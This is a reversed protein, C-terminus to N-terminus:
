LNFETLAYCAMSTAVAADIKKDDSRKVLRRKDGAEIKGDANKIHQALIKHEQDAGNWSWRGDRILGRFHADALARKTTQPFDLFMGIGDNYLQGAFDVLQFPDFAFCVVHYQAAVEKVFQRPKDFTVIGSVDDKLEAPEFVRCFVQVFQGTQPDKGVGSIAFTDQKSAADLGVCIPNHMDLRPFQEGYLACADVWGAPVFNDAGSIFEAGYEQRAAPDQKIEALYYARDRESKPLFPNGWTPLRYSAWDPDALAMDYLAKFDDEGNPSSFFFADGARDILTPRLEREWREKVKPAKIVEEVILRDYDRSRAVLGAEFSWCELVGGTKLKLYHDTEDKDATLPAFLEVYNNWFPEVIKYGPWFWGLKGGRDILTEVILDTGFTTKGARRGWCLVNYRKATDKVNQQAPYLEPITLNIVPM